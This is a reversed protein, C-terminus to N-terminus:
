GCAPLRVQDPVFKVKGELWPSALFEKLGDRKQVVARADPCTRYLNSCLQAAPAQGDPTAEVLAMLASAVHAERDETQDPSVISLGKSLETSAEKPDESRGRSARGAASEDQKATSTAVVKGCGQWM